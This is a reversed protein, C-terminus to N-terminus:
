KLLDEINETWNLKGAEYKKLTKLALKEAKVSMPIAPYRNIVRDTARSILYKVYRTADYGFQSALYSLAQAEPNTLTLQLKTM